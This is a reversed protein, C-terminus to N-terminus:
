DAVYVEEEGSLPYRRLFQTFLIGGWLILVSGLALLYFTMGAKYSEPYLLVALLGFGVSLAIFVYYRIAGTKSALYIFGGCFLLSGGFPVWRTWQYPGDIDGFIFILAVVVSIVITIYLAMGRAMQSGEESPLQVYGIRPYTYRKKLKEAVKPGFFLTLFILVTMLPTSWVGAYLVLFLGVLIEVLGDQFTDRWARREVKDLDVLQSM